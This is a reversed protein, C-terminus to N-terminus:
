ILYVTIKVDGGAGTPAGSLTVTITQTGCAPIPWLDVGVKPAVITVAGKAISAQSFLTDGYSNAIAITATVVATFDAVDVVILHHLASTEITFSKTTDGSGFSLTQRPLELVKKNSDQHFYKVVDAM